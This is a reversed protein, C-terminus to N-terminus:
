FMLALQGNPEELYLNDIVTLDNYIDSLDFQVMIGHRYGKQHAPYYVRGDHKFLYDKIDKINPKSYNFRLPNSFFSVEGHNSPYLETFYCHKDVSYLSYRVATINLKSEINNIDMIVEAYKM